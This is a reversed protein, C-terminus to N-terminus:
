RDYKDGVGMIDTVCGLFPMYKLVDKIESREPIPAQLETHRRMPHLNVGMSHEQPVSNATTSM